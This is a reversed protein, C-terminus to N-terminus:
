RSLIPLPYFNIGFQTVDNISSRKGTMPQGDIYESERCEGNQFCESMSGAASLPYFYPFIIINRFFLNTNIREFYNYTSLIFVFKLLIFYAFTLNLSFELM